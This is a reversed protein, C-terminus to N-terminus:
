TKVLHIVYSVVAGAIGGIVSMLKWAGQAKARDLKLDQVDERLGNVGDVLDQQTKVIQGLQYHINQPDINM